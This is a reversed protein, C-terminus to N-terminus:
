FRLPWRFLARALAFTAGSGQSGGEGDEGSVRRMAESVDVGGGSRSRPSFLMGTAVAEGGIGSFADTGGEGRFANTGGGHAAEDSLSDTGGCEGGEGRLRMLRSVTFRVTEPKAWRVAERSGDTDFSDFVLKHDDREGLRAATTGSLTGGKEFATRFAPPSLTDLLSLFASTSSSNPYLVTPGIPAPLNVITM